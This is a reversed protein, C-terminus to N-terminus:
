MHLWHMDGSYNHTRIESMALHVRYLIIHYLKDTVQVLNTTKEPYQKGGGNSRCKVDVHSIWFPIKRWSQWHHMSSTSGHSVFFLLLISTIGFFFVVVFCVFLCVFLFFGLFGGSTICSFRWSIVSINNFTANFVMARVIARWRSILTLVYNKGDCYIVVSMLRIMWPSYCKHKSKSNTDLFIYLM